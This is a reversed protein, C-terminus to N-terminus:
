RKGYFYILKWWIYTFIGTGHIRHSLVCLWVDCMWKKGAQLRPVTALALEVPPVPLEVPSDERHKKRIQRQLDNIWYLVKLLQNCSM